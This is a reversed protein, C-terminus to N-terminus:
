EKILFLLAAAGIVALSVSGEFNVVFDARVSLERLVILLLFLRVQKRKM